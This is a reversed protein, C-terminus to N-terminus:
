TRQYIADEGGAAPKFFFPRFASARRGLTVWSTLYLVFDRREDM